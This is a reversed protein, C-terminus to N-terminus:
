HVRLRTIPFQEGGPGCGPRRRHGADVGLAVPRVRASTPAGGSVTWLGSSCAASGPAAPSGIDGDAWGFPLGARLPLGAMRLWLSVLAARM